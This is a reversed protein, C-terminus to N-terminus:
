KIEVKLGYNTNNYIDNFIPYLIKGDNSITYSVNFNYPNNLIISSYNINNIFTNLQTNILSMDKIYLLDIDINFGKLSYFPKKVLIDFHLNNKNVVSIYSQDFYITKYLIHNSYLIIKFLSLNYTYNINKPGYIDYLLSKIKNSYNTNNIILDKNIIFSGDNKIKFTSDINLINDNNNNSLINISNNKLTLVKNFNYNYYDYDINKHNIYKSINQNINYIFLMNNNNSLSLYVSNDTLINNYSQNFYPLILNDTNIFDNNNSDNLLNIKSNVIFNNATINNYTYKINNINNKINVYNTKIYYTNLNNVILDNLINLNSKLTLNGNLLLSNKNNNHNNITILSNSLINNSGISIRSDNHIILIDKINFLTNDFNNTLVSFKSINLQNNKIYFKNTNINKYFHTNVNINIDSNTNFTIPCDTIFNSSGKYISNSYYYGLLNILFSQNINKQTSKIKISLLDNKSYYLDNDLKLLDRNKNINIEKFLINNKCLQVTITHQNYNICEFLLHSIYINTYIIEYILYNTNNIIINKNNLYITTNLYEFNTTIGHMYFNNSKYYMKLESEFTQQTISEYKKTNNDYVRILNRYTQLSTNDIFSNKKINLNTSINLNDTNLNNKFTNNFYFNVYNNNFTIINNNKIKFICTNDVIDIGTKFIDLLKITTWSNKNTINIQNTNPNYCLSGEYINDHIFPLQIYGSNISCIKTNILNNVICNNNITSNNLIKINNINTNFDCIINNGIHLINNEKIYFDIDNSDIKISSKNNKEYFDNLIYNFNNSNILFLQNTKNFCISGISNLNEGIQLIGNDVIVNKSTAKQTIDLFNCEFSGDFYFDKSINLYQLNLNKEILYDENIITNISNVNANYVTLNNYVILNNNIKLKNKFITNKSITLNGCHLNNLININKNIYINSLPKTINLIHNNCTINNYLKLINKKIDLNGEISVNNKIKINFNNINVNAIFTCNNKIEFNEIELSEQINLNGSINASKNLILNEYTWFSETSNYPPLKIFNNSNSSM